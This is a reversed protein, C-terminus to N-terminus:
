RRGGKETDDLTGTATLFLVSLALSVLVWRLAAGDMGGRWLQYVTTSLTATRGHTYGAVMSTAGYEGMARAFALFAGALIGRWCAPLRVHWFTWLSSRGLTLAADAQEGDFAAFSRRASRYLFPFAALFAAFVASWWALTLRVGFAARFLEGLPQDAGLVKLLLWGTVTPPLALPLCLVVDVATRAPRPLRTVCLAAPVGLLLASAAAIAAVRLTNFLPYWEM